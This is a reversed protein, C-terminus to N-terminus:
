NFSIGINFSIANVEEHGFILDNYGFGCSSWYSSYITMHDYSVGVKLALKDSLRFYTGIGIKLYIGPYELVCDTEAIFGFQASLYIPFRNSTNTTLDLFIPFVKSYNNKKDIFHRLGVGFGLSANNNFQYSNIFDFKIFEENIAGTTSAGYGLGLHLKYGKNFLDSKDENSTSRLITESKDDIINLEQAIVDINISGIIIAIFVLILKQKM